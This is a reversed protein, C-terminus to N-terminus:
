RPREAARRHANSEVPSAGTGAWWRKALLPWLAVVGPLVILRFGLSAGRAGPDVRVLGRALFSLGFILGVAIHVAALGALAAAVSEATM